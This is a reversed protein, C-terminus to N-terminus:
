WRRPASKGCWKVRVPPFASRHICFASRLFISIQKTKREENQMRCEFKQMEALPIKRNCKGDSELSIREFRDRRRRSTILCWQGTCNPSEEGRVARQSMRPAVAEDAAVFPLIGRPSRKLVNRRRRPCPCLAFHLTCLASHFRCMKKREEIQVKCKASQVELVKGLFYNSSKGM